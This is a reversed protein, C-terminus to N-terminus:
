ISILFFNLVPGKDPEPFVLVLHNVAEIAQKFLYAEATLAKVLHQMPLSPNPFLVGVQGYQYSSDPIFM